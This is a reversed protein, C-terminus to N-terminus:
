YNSRVYSVHVRGRGVERGAHRSRNLLNRVSAELEQPICDPGGPTEVEIVGGEEETDREVEDELAQDEPRHEQM